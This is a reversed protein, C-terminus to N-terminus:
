GRKPRVTAKLCMLTCAVALTTIHSTPDKHNTSGLKHTLTIPPRCSSTTPHKVTQNLRTESMKPILVPTIPEHLDLSFGFRKVEIQILEIENPKPWNKM